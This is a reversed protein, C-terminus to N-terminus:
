THPSRTLSLLTLGYDIWFVHTVSIVADWIQSLFDSFVEEGQKPMSWAIVGLFDGQARCSM